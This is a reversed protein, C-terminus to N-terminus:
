KASRETDRPLRWPPGILENRIQGDIVFGMRREARRDCTTRKLRGGM